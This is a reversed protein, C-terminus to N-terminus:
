ISNKLICIGNTGIFTGPVVMSVFVRYWCRMKFGGGFINTCWFWLTIFVELVYM